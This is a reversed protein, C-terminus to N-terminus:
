LMLEVIEEPEIRYFYFGLFTENTNELFVSPNETQMVFGSFNKMAEQSRLCFYGEYDNETAINHVISRSKWTSINFERNVEM